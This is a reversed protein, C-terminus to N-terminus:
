KIYIGTTKIDFLHELFADLIQKSMDFYNEFFTTHKKEFKENKECYRFKLWRSCLVYDDLAEFFRYAAWPIDKRFVFGM